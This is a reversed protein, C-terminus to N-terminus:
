EAVFNTVKVTVIETKKVQNEGTEAGWGDAFGDGSFFEMDQWRKHPTNVSAKPPSHQKQYVRSLAPRLKWVTGLEGLPCRVSELM